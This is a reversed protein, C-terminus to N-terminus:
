SKLKPTIIWQILDLSDHFSHHENCMAIFITRIANSMIRLHINSVMVIRKTGFTQSKSSYNPCSTYMKFQDPRLRNSSLPEKLIKSTNTGIVSFPNSRNPPNLELNLKQEVRMEMSQSSGATIWRNTAASGLTPKTNVFSIMRISPNWVIGKKDMLEKLNDILDLSGSLAKLQDSTRYQFTGKSLEVGFVSTGLTPMTFSSTNLADNLLKVHVGM